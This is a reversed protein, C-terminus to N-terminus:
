YIVFGGDTAMKKITQFRNSLQDLYVVCLVYAEDKLARGDFKVEKLKELVDIKKKLDEFWAQVCFNKNNNAKMKLCEEKM